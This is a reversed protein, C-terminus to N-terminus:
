MEALKLRMPYMSCCWKGLADLIIEVVESLKRLILNSIETSM